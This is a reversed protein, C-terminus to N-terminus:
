KDSTNVLQFGTTVGCTGQYILNGWRDYVSGCSDTTFPGGDDWTGPNSETEGKDDNSTENQVSKITVLPDIVEALKYCHAKDGALSLSDIVVNTYEGAKDSELDVNGNVKVQVKGKDGSVLQTDPITLTSEDVEVMTNGAEYDRDVLEVGSLTISKPHITVYVFAQSAAHNDDPDSHAPVKYTIAVRQTVDSPVDILKLTGDTVTILEPNSSEWEGDDPLTTVTQGKRTLKVSLNITDGYVGSITGRTVEDSGQFINITLVPQDSFKLTTIGTKPSVFNSDNHTYSWYVDVDSDNNAYKVLTDETLKISCNEDEYWNISGSKLTDFSYNNKVEPNVDYGSIQVKSNLVLLNDLLSSLGKELTWTKPMDVTFDHKEIEYNVNVTTGPELLRSNNDAVRIPVSYIGPYSVFHKGLNNYDTYLQYIYSYSGWLNTVSVTVDTSRDTNDFIEETWDQSIMDETLLIKVKGSKKETLLGNGKVQSKGGHFETVGFSNLAGGNGSLTADKSFSLTSSDTLSIPSDDNFNRLYPGAGRVNLTADNSVTISYGDPVTVNGVVNSVNSSIVIGEDTLEAVSESLSQTVFSGMEADYYTGNAIIGNWNQINSVDGLGDPAIVVVFGNGSNGIHLSGHNFDGLGKSGSGISPSSETGTGAKAYVLGGNLIVTGNFIGNAGTGIGAGTGVGGSDSGYAYVTGGSVILSGSNSSGGISEHYGTGIGAGGSAGHAEVYGGLVEINGFNNEDKNSGIGASGFASGWARSGESIVSGNNVTLKSNSSVRIGPGGESGHANLQGGNIILEGVDIGSGYSTGGNVNITGSEIVVTGDGSIGSAGDDVGNLTLTGTGELYLKAGNDVWIAPHANGGDDGGYITVDGEFLLHLEGGNVDIASNTTDREDMVVGNKLLIYHPGSDIDFSVPMQKNILGWDYETKGSVVHPNDKSCTCPDTFHFVNDEGRETYEGLNIEIENNTPISYLEISDAISNSNLSQLSKNLNFDVKGSMGSEVSDESVDSGTTETENNGDSSNDTEKTETLTDEKDNSNTNDLDSTEDDDFTEDSVEESESGEQNSNEPNANTEGTQTMQSENENKGTEADTSESDQGEEPDTSGETAEKTEGDEVITEGNEVTETVPDMNEVQADEAFVNMSGCSFVLFVSVVFSVWRKM